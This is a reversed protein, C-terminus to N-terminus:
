KIVSSGMSPRFVQAGCEHGRPGYFEKNLVEILGSACDSRVLINVCGGLGAGSIEAGMVGPCANATDVIFDIEPTSCSYCGSQNELRSAEVDTENELNAILQRLRSDSVDSKFAEGASAVRDGDHSTNMMRGLTEYKGDVIAKFARESRLCESLGFMVVGRIEYYEPIAHHKQMEDIQSAYQPLISHLSESTIREPLVLLMKYLEIDSLGLNNLDRLHVLKDAYQPYFTNLMMVGFYYCAVKQNFKDKAGESKKASAFSNAVVVCYDPSFRASLGIRMPKFLMHTIKGKECCKMAGHDGAGGRSGVFWEGEGCLEVFRSPEVEIHNLSAVAEATAVVLSSSSSLGAAQPIDGSVMIDMGLLTEQNEYQFRLVAAKIYNVWKGKNANVSDLVAPSEIFEIWSDRKDSLAMCEEISFYFDEFQKDLNSISVVDDTRPAVVMITERDICMVNSSGGQHDIHRGMLNVRGPARTVIIKQNGFREIFAKILGTYRSFRSDKLCENAYKLDRFMFFRNLERLDEQTSYTVMQDRSDIVLLDVSNKKVFYELTDTLYIEGQANPKDILSIANIVEDIDFCYLSANTYISQEIEASDFSVSCLDITRPIRDMSVAKQLVKYAKRESLGFEKLTSLYKGDDRKEINGLALLASDPQEVVGYVKGDRIVIRGGSENLSRTQAGWVALVGDENKKAVMEAIKDPSIIKDGVSIVANGSFGLAKAAKLGCLAAGGTGNQVSQFAFVVNEEDALCEMVKEAHFGVVVVFRNVGAKRFNSVIRKIVPVGAVEFCVKNTSDDNMRTGKGAALIIAIDSITESNIM